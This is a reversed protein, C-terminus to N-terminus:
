GTREVIVIGRRSLEGVLTKWPMHQIPSLVGRATIQGGALMQAAISAPFGVTRNMAMLGTAPDGYDILELVLTDSDGGEGRAEVRLIVADRQGAGYQLRPELHRIMFERPTVSGLGPVPDQELFGLGVLARWLAVHGPWRLAYRGVERASGAIGFRQAYEAADGNPYAELSGFPPINVSHVEDEDLIQEAAVEVIRGERVVRSSRAYANLVGEWTWSIRYRLPNDDAGAEPIGGGYSLLHTVRDFRRVAEAAMVLDIGPDLGMEPLLAVGAERAAADLDRLAHDYYTNVLHVRAAICAQAVSRIFQRPLMDVVVDFGGGILRSLADADGADLAVARLRDSGGAQECAAQAVQLDVDACTLQVVADSTALDHVVARGQLGCGIVLVKM